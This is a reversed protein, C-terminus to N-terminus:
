DDGRRHRSGVISEVAVFCADACKAIPCLEVSQVVRVKARILPLMDFFMESVKGLDGNTMAEMSENQTMQLQMAAFPDLDAAHCDVLYQVRSQYLPMKEKMM